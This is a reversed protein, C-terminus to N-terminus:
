PARTLALVIRSMGDRRVGSVRYLESDGAVQIRDSQKIEDAKPHANRDISLEYRHGAVLSRLTNGVSDRAGIEIGAPEAAEDFIGRGQWTPRDPDAIPRGNPSQLVPTCTFTRSFSRDVTRSLTKEMRDFISM